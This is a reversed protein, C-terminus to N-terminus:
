KTNFFYLFIYLLKYKKILRVILRLQQCGFNDLIFIHPIFALIDLKADLSMKICTQCTYVNHMVQTNNRSM